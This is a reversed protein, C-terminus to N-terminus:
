EWAYKTLDGQASLEPFGRQRLVEYVAIAASNSLNLSRLTPRMPIRVSTEPHAALLEEPLGRDERGFMLYVDEDQPYVVDAYCCRSKTTFFYIRGDKHRQLFDALDEYEEVDLKDWYDLGARKLHKDTIVFGYPKILHLKAGTVACTRSINGTNEPIRPECLVIHIRSMMKDKWVPRNKWSDGNELLPIIHIFRVRGTFIGYGLLPPFVAHIEICNYLSNRDTCCNACGAIQNGFCGVAFLVAHFSVGALSELSGSAYQIVNSRQNHLPLLSHVFAPDERGQM